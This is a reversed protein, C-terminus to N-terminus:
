KPKWVRIAIVVAVVVLMLLLVPTLSGLDRLNMWAPPLLFRIM